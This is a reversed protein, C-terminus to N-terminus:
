GGTRLAASAPPPRTPPRGLQQIDDVIAERMTMEAACADDGVSPLNVPRERRSM